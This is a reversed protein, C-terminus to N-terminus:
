LSEKGDASPLYDQNGSALDEQSESLCNYLSKASHRVCLLVRYIDQMYIITSFLTTLATPKLSEIPLLPHSQPQQNLRLLQILSRLPPFTQGPAKLSFSIEVVLSSPPRELIFFSYTCFPLPSCHCLSPQGLNHPAWYAVTLTLSKKVYAM